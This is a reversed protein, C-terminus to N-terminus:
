GHAADGGRGRAASIRVPPPVRDRIAVMRFLAVADLDHGARPTSHNHRYFQRRWAIVLHDPLGDRPELLRAM